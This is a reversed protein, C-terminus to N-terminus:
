GRWLPKLDGGLREALLEAKQRPLRTAMTPHVTWWNFNAGASVLFSTRDGRTRTIIYESKM